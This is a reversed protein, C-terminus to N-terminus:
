QSIKRGEEIQHEFFRQSSFAITAMLTGAGIMLAVMVGIIAAWGSSSARGEPNFRADWKEDSTLGYVIAMLMGAAVTCGLLPILIWSLQDDQGFQQVRQLGYLGLLTPLPYLWGWVDKLGHLYFRHFGLSGFVVAIWTALTKSKSVASM